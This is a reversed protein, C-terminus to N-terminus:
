TIGSLKYSFVNKNRPWNEEEYISHDNDDKWKQLFRAKLIRLQQKPTWNMTLFRKQHCFSSIKWLIQLPWSQKWCHLGWELAIEQVMDLHYTPM